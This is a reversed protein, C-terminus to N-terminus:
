ATFEGYRLMRAAQHLLQRLVVERELATTDEQEEGESLLYTEESDM